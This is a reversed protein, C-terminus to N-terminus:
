KNLGLRHKMEKSSIGGEKQQCIRSRKIIALFQPNCSLSATEKDANEISVVAAMPKGNSTIVVPEKTAKRAYDSLPATAKALEIIKM